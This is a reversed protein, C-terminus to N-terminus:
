IANTVVCFFMDGYSSPIFSMFSIFYIEPSPERELMINM